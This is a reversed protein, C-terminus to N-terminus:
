ATCIVIWLGNIGATLFPAGVTLKDEIYITKYRPQRVDICDRGDNAIQVLAARDALWMMSVDRRRFFPVGTGTNNTLKRGRIDLESMRPSYLRGCEGGSEDEQEVDPAAFAGAKRRVHITRHVLDM